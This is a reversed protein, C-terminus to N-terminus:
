LQGKGVFGGIQGLLNGSTYARKNVIEKYNDQDYRFVMKFFSEVKGINGERQIASLTMATCPQTYMTQLRKFGGPDRFYKENITRYQNQKCKPLKQLLDGAFMQWYAPICGVERMIIDLTIQTEDLLSPDCRTNSDHRKRLVEIKDIRYEYELKITSVDSTAIETLPTKRM